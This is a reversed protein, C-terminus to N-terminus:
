NKCNVKILKIDRFENGHGTIVIFDATDKCPLVYEKYQIQRMMFRGMIENTSLGRKIDKSISTTLTRNIDTDIYIKVNLLKNLENYLGGDVGAGKRWLAFLGEVIIISKTHAIVDRRYLKTHYYKPIVVAQGAILEHITKILERIKISQATFELKKDYLETKSLGYDDTSISVGHTTVNNENLTALLYESFTTKGWCAPATLGIVIPKNCSIIMEEITNIIPSLTQPSKLLFSPRHCLINGEKLETVRLKIKEIADVFKLKMSYHNYKLKMFNQNHRAIQARINEDTLWYFVNSPIPGNKLIHEPVELVLLGKTVERYIEIHRGQYPTTILPKGHIASEFIPLGLTEISSFFLVTDTAAYLSPMTIDNIFQGYPSVGFPFLFVLSELIFLPLRKDLYVSKIINDIINLYNNDPVDYIPGGVIVVVSKSSYLLYDQFLNNLLINNIFLLANDIRKGSSLKTPIFIVYVNENIEEHFNHVVKVGTPNKISFDSFITKPLSKYLSIIPSKDRLEKRVTEDTTSYPIVVVNDDEWGREILWRKTTYTTTGQLWFPSSWPCLIKVLDFVESIAENVFLRARTGHKHEWYFDHCINLVPLRLEESLLVTALSACINYPLSNINEIILLTINENIIIRKLDNVISKAKTLIRNPLTNYHHTDREFSKYFDSSIDCQLGLEPIIYFRDGFASPLFFRDNVNGTILIIDQFSLQGDQKISRLCSIHKTILRAVGDISIRFTIFGISGSDLKNASNFAKKTLRYNNLLSFLEFYITNWTTMNSMIHGISIDKPFQGNAVNPQQL